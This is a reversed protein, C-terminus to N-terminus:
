GLKGASWMGQILKGVNDLDERSKASDLREDLISKPDKRQNTKNPASMGGGVVHLGPNPAASSRKKSSSDRLKGEAKALKQIMAYRAEPDKIEGLAPNEELITQELEDTVGYKSKAKATVTSGKLKEIEQTLESVRTQIAQGMLMAMRKAIQGQREWFWGNEGELEADTISPDLEKIITKGDVDVLPDTPASGQQKGSRLAEVEAQLEELKKVFEGREAGQKGLKKRLKEVEAKYDITNEDDGEDKDTEEAGEDEGENGEGEGAQGDQNEGLDIGAEELMKATEPDMEVHDPKPMGMVEGLNMEGIEALAKEVESAAGEAAGSGLKVQKDESM